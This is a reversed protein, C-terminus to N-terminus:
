LMNKKPSIFFFDISKPQFFLVKDLAIGIVLLIQKMDNIVNESITLM